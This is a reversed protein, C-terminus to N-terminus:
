AKFAMACGESFSIPERQICPCTHTYASKPRHFQTCSFLADRGTLLCDPALARTSVQLLQALLQGKMSIDLPSPVQLAANAMAAGRTISQVRDNFSYKRLRCVTEGMAVRSLSEPGGCHMRQHLYPQLLDLGSSFLTVLRCCADCVDVIAIPCRFEDCFLQLPAAAADGLSADIFQLFTSTKHGGRPTCPGYVLSLRLVISCPLALAELEAALKSAGYTNVPTPRLAEDSGEAYSGKQGDFVQFRTLM